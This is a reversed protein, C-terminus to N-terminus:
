TKTLNTYLVPEYHRGAPMEKLKQFLFLFDCLELEPSYPPHEMVKLNMEQLYNAVVDSKHALANDQLLHLGRMFTRPRRETYVKVFKELIQEKYFQGTVSSGKSVPVQLVPGHGDFFIAYMTKSVTKNRRAIVPREGDSAM